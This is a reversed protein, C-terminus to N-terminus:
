KRVALSCKTYKPAFLSRAAWYFNAINNRWHRPRTKPMDKGSMSNLIVDKGNKSVIRPNGYDIRLLPFIPSNDEMGCRLCESEIQKHYKQSYEGACITDANAQLQGLIHEIGNLIRQTEQRYVGRCPQYITEQTEQQTHDFYTNNNSFDVTLVAIGHTDCITIRPLFLHRAQM